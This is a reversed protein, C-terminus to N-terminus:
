AHKRIKDTVRRLKTRVKSIGQLGYLELILNMVNWIPIEDKMAGNVNYNSIIKQIDDGFAIFIGYMSHSAKWKATFRNAKNQSDWYSDVLPDIEIEFGDNAILILDPADREKPTTEIRYIEKVLRKHSPHIISLIDNILKEKFDKYDIGDEELKRKNIFIPGQKLGVVYSNKIDVIKDLGHEDRFAMINKARIQLLRPLRSYIRTIISKTIGSRLIIYQIANILPKALAQNKLKLLGKDLLYRNIYFMDRIEQFGHDSVIIYNSQPCADIIKSLEKDIISYAERVANKDHWYFHQILDVNFVVMMVFDYQEKDLMYHLVEFRKRILDLLESLAKSPELIVHHTSTIKYGIAEELEKKIGAPWTYNDNNSAPIGSIMVGNIPKPPFTLPVNVILSKFGKLGLYDWIEKAKFSDSYFYRLKGQDFDVHAWWYVGLEEPKLGTTFSKWAPCTVPPVTSRLSMSIGNSMLRNITPLYSIHERIVNWSGGDIGIVFVAPCHKM